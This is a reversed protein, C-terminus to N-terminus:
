SRSDFFFSLFNLWNFYTFIISFFFSFIHFSNGSWMVGLRYINVGLDALLAHDRDTLSIDIDFEETLPVYPFGKVVANIGHFFIQRGTDKEIFFREDNSQYQTLQVKSLITSSSSSTVIYSFTTILFFIQM